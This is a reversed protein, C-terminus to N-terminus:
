PKPLEHSNSAEPKRPRPAQSSIRPNSPKCAKASDLVYQTAVDQSRPKQVRPQLHNTGPPKVGSLAQSNSTYAGRQSGKLGTTTLAALVGYCDHIAFALPESAVGLTRHTQLSPSPTRRSEYGSCCKLLTGGKGVTSPDHKPFVDSTSSFSPPPGVHKWCILLDLCSAGHERGTESDTIEADRM